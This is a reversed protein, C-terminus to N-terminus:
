RRKTFDARIEDLTAVHGNQVWPHAALDAISLRTAPDYQLMHTILDKFDDSFFGAPKNNEHIAWFTDYDEKCIHKYHPDFTQAQAFPPHGSYLIFIIIGMAFLDVSAGNYPKKAIIEPAKYGPTGLPTKLFGSGDRGETPAAFGFDTVKLNFQDDLMMNEPKLDRHAIGSNHFYNLVNLM